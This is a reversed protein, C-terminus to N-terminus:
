FVLEVRATPLRGPPTSLTTIEADEDEGKFKIFFIILM